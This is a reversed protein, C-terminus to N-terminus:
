RTDERRPSLVMRMQAGEADGFGLAGLRLAVIDNPDLRARMLGNGHKLGLVHGIEHAEVAGVLDDFRPILLLPHITGERRTSIRDAVTAVCTVSIQVTGRGPQAGVAARGCNEQRDTLVHRSLKVIVDASPEAISDCLEAPKCLRWTMEIGASGLLRQAVGQAREVTADDVSRDAYVRVRLMARDLVPVGSQVNGGLLALVLWAIVM